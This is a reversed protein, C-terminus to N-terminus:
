GGFRAARGRQFLLALLGIEPALRLFRSLNSELQFGEAFPNVGVFAQL